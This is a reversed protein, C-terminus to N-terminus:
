VHGLGSQLKSASKANGFIRFFLNITGVILMLLGIRILTRGGIGFLGGWILDPIGALFLAYIALRERSWTQDRAIVRRRWREVRLLGWGTLVGGSIIGIIGFEFYFEGFVMFALTHEESVYNRLVPFLEVFGTRGIGGPKTPWVARPVPSVFAAVITSGRPTSREPLILVDRGNEIDTDIADAFSGIPGFVSGLGDAFGATGLTVSESQTSRTTEIFSAVMLLPVLAAIAGGRVLSSSRMGTLCLVIAFGLSAMLLRGFGTFVTIYYVLFLFISLLAYRKRLGRLLSDAGAAASAAFVASAFLLRDGVVPIPIVVSLFLGAGAVIFVTVHNVDNTLRIRTGGDRTEVHLIAAVILVFFTLSVQAIVLGTTVAFFGFNLGFIVSAPVFITSVISFVQLVDWSPSPSAVYFFLLPIITLVAFLQVSFSSPEWVAIGGSALAPILLVALLARNFSGRGTSQDILATAAPAQIM